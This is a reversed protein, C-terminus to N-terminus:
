WARSWVRRQARRARARMTNGMRAGAGRNCPYCCIRWRVPPAIARPPDEDLDMQKRSVMVGVCRPSRPGHWPGPCMTGLAAPVLEDKRKRHPPGLGRQATTGRRAWRQQDRATAM